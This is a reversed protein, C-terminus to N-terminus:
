APIAGSLEKIHCSNMAACVSSFSAMYLPSLEPTAIAIGIIIAFTASILITSLNNKIFDGTVELSEKAKDTLYTNLKKLHNPIPVLAPIKVMQPKPRPGIKDLYLNFIISLNYSKNDSKIAYDFILSLKRLGIQMSVSADPFIKGM